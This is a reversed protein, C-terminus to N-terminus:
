NYSGIYRGACNFMETEIYRGSRSRIVKESCVETSHYSNRDYHRHGHRHGHGRDREIIVTRPEREIIVTEKHGDRFVEKLILLGMAGGVFDGVDGAHAPATAGLAMSGALVGALIQKKM